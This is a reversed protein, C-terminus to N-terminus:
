PKSSCAFAAMKEESSGAAIPKWLPSGIGAHGPVGSGMAGAYEVVYGHRYQRQACDYESQGITSRPGPQATANSQVAQDTLVWVKVRADARSLNASDIYLTANSTQVVKVWEACASFSAGALALALAMTGPWLFSKM